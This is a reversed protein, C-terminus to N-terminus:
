LSVAAGVGEHVGRNTSQVTSPRGAENGSSIPAALMYESSATEHASALSYESSVNEHASALMYESGVSEVASALMYESGVNEQTISQSKEAPIPTVSDYINAEDEEDGTANGAPIEDRTKDEQYSASHPKTPDSFLVM